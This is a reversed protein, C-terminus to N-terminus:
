STTISGSIQDQENECVGKTKNRNYKTKDLEVQSKFKPQMVMSKASKIKM